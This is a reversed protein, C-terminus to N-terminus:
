WLGRRSLAGLVARRARRKVLKAALAEPGKKDLTNADSTARSALYLVRSIQGPGSRRRSM